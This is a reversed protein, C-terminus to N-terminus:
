ATLPDMCGGSDDVEDGSAETLGDVEVQWGGLKESETWGELRWSVAMEENAPQWEELRWPVAM